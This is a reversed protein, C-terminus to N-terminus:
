ALPRLALNRSKQASFVAMEVDRARWTRGTRQTLLAATFQCWAIWSEVFQWHSEKLVAGPRLQPVYELDPGGVVSYGHAVSNEGAWRTIQTDVMPFKEPCIFAPFTAATAVVPQTFLESRFATFSEFNPNSIYNACSSWLDAAVAGSELLAVARKAARGTGGSYLKWFMVEGWAELHDLARERFRTEFSMTQLRNGPNIKTNFWGRHKQADPYGTLDVSYRYEGLAREWTEAGTGQEADTPRFARDAAQGVMYCTAGDFTGGVAGGVLPVLKGLNLIGKEGFKTLLRFGVRKNIEVLVRGPMKKLGELAAKEGLTVGVQKLVDEMATGIMCLLIATQVQDDKSNHGYIEAIAAVMPAQIAISAALSGPVAVPLTMVGGLGAVFGAAANKAVAWKVLAQVREVDNAYPQRKYANALDSASPLAQDLIWHVLEDASKMTTHHYEVHPKHAGRGPANRRAFQLGRRLERNGAAARRAMSSPIASERVAGPPPVEGRRARGRPRAVSSTTSARESRSPHSAGTLVQDM